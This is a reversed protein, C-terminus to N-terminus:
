LGWAFLHMVALLMLEGFMVGLAIVLIAEGYEKIWKVVKQM